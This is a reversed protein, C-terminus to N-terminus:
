FYCRKDIHNLNHILFFFPPLFSFTPTVDDRFIRRAYNSVPEEIVRTNAISAPSVSEWNAVAAFGDQVGDQRHEQGLERFSDNVAVRQVTNKVIKGSIFITVSPCFYRAHITM